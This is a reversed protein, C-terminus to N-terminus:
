MYMRSINFILTYDELGIQQAKAEAVTGIGENIEYILTEVTDVLPGEDLYIELIVDNYGQVVEEVTFVQKVMEIVESDLNENPIVLHHYFMALEPYEGDALAEQVQDEEYNVRFNPNVLAEQVMEMALTSQKSAVAEVLFTDNNVNVVREMPKETYLNIINTM